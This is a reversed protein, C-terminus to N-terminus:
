NHLALVVPPPSPEDRRVSEVAYGLQTAVLPVIKMGDSSNSEALATGHSPDYVAVQGPQPIFYLMPLETGDVRVWYLTSEHPLASATTLVESLRQGVTLNVPTPQPMAANRFRVAAVSNKECIALAREALRPADIQPAVPLRLSAVGYYEDRLWWGGQWTILAITHPKRRGDGNRALVILPEGREAPFAAFLRSLYAAASVYCGNMVHVTDPFHPPASERGAASPVMSSSKSEASAVVTSMILALFRHHISAIM